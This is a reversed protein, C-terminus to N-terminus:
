RVPLIINEGATYTYDPQKHNMRYILEKAYQRGEESVARNPYFTQIIEDIGGEPVKDINAPAKIIQLGNFMDIVKKYEPNMTVIEHRIRSADETYDALMEALEDIDVKPPLQIFIENEDIQESFLQLNADDFITRRSIGSVRIHVTEPRREVVVGSFDPDIRQYESLALYIGWIKPVFNRSENNHCVQVYNDPNGLLEKYHHEVNGPGHNYSWMAFQWRETDTPKRFNPSRIEEDWEFTIEFLDRLFRLAADTSKSIDKREDEPGGTELGYERATAPMFQWAGMAGKHSFAKPNWHSEALSLFIIEKPVGYEKCKDLIMRLDGSEFMRKFGALMSSHNTYKNKWSEIMRESTEGLPPRMEPSTFLESIDRPIDMSADANEPPFTSAISLAGLAKLFDRRNVGPTDEIIGDPSKPEELSM